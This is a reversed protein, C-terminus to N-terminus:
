PRGTHEGSDAFQCQAALKAMFKEPFGYKELQLLM